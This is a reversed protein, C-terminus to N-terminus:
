RAYFQSPPVYPIIFGLVTNIFDTQAVPLGPLM